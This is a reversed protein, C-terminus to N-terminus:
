SYLALTLGAILYQVLNAFNHSVVPAILSRTREYAISYFVGLIFALTVQLTSFDVSFPTFNIEMHAYAFILAAILGATPVKLKSIRISSKWARALFTQLLGRFFIEESTGSMLGGFSAWGLM